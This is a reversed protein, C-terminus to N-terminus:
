VKRLQQMLHSSGNCAMSRILTSKMVYNASSISLFQSVMCTETSTLSTHRWASKEKMKLRQVIGSAFCEVEIRGMRCPFQYLMSGMQPYFNRNRFLFIQRLFGWEAVLRSAALWRERLPTLIVLCVIPRRWGAHLRDRLVSQMFEKATLESLEPTFPLVAVEGCFVESLLALKEEQTTLLLPAFDKQIVKRPHCDFTVAMPLLGGASALEELQKLLYRHGRHVGDFFGITVAVSKKM